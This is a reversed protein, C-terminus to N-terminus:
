INIIIDNGKGNNKIEGAVRYKNIKISELIAKDFNTFFNFEILEHLLAIDLINKKVLNSKLSKQYIIEIKQKTINELKQFIERLSMGKGSGINITKNKIKQSILNEIIKALDFIYIYDRVTDLDTWLEIKEKKYIKRLTIDIIGQKKNESCYGGYPNSLRLNLYNLKKNELFNIRILNELFLKQLGYINVPETKHEESIVGDVDGYISGGSSFYIYLKPTYKNLKRLLKLKSLYTKLFEEELNSMDNVPTINGLLDIVYSGEFYKILVEEDIDDVDRSIFKIGEYLKLSYESKIGIVIIEHKKNSVSGLYNAINLGLYGCGLIVIKM